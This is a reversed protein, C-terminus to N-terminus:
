PARREFARVAERQSTYEGILRGEFDVVVYRADIRVITGLRTLGDHITVQAFNRLPSNASTGTANPCAQAAAADGTRRNADSRGM